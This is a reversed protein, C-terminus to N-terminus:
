GFFCIANISNRVRNGKHCFAWFVLVAFVSLLYVFPFSFPNDQRFYVSCDPCIRIGSWLPRRVNWFHSVCADANGAIDQRNNGVLRFLGTPRPLMLISSAKARRNGRLPTSLSRRASARAKKGDVCWRDGVLLIKRWGSTWLWAPPCRVRHLYWMPYVRGVSRGIVISPPSYLPEPRVLWFFPMFFHIIRGFGLKKEGFPQVQCQAYLADLRFFYPHLRVVDASVILGVAEM